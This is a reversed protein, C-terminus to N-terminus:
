KEHLAHEIKLPTIHEVAEFGNSASPQQEPKEPSIPKPQEAPIYKNLGVLVEKNEKYAHIKKQRAKVILKQIEGSKVAEHYGGWHEIEQFLEWSKQTITDTLAEIYYSGAGADAVKNLYAEHKLIHQTNRAIRAAFPSPEAWNEDYRRTTIYNCGGIAAAMAETSSRIMNNFADQRPKNWLATTAHLHLATKEALGSKHTDLVMAWLLRFARFKAIELFYSSAVSFRFHISQSLEEYGLQLNEKLNLYENGAALAFALQQVISAGAEAPVAADVGLRKFPYLEGLSSVINDRRPLKGTLLSNCYPSYSLSIDLSATDLAQENCIDRLFAATKPTALAHSFHLSILEVQIDDLLNQLAAKDTLVHTPLNIYLGSVGNKLALLAQENATKVDRADIIEVINWDATSTLPEAKHKLEALDERRYFPLAEVGETNQWLLEKKYDLGKLDKTLEAEWEATSVPPFESFSLHKGPFTKAM